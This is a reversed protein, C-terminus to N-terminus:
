FYVMAYSFYVRLYVHVVIPPNRKPKMLHRLDFIKTVIMIFFHLSANMDKRVNMFSMNGMAIKQFHHWEFSFAVGEQFSVFNISGEM